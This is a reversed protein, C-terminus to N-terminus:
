PSVQAEATAIVAPLNPIAEYYGVFRQPEEADYGRLKQAWRFSISQYLLEVHVTFPGPASGVDVVYRVHDGGAGFDDDGAAAGYVAIDPDVGAKDFGLPLLRNDKVYGSGRLLVTTVQGNVDEMVSEYVQVQEPNDITAHHPEYQGAGADHDEGAIAGDPGVAGSEFVVRGDGDAVTLYLWARRSPFGSPFKHGALNNVVVTASLTSDSLSLDKLALHATRNQLQELTAEEKAAFMEGSATVGVEDGFRGLIRLMYANGGVFLHQFFPSRPPGGTVSLRVGGDARPMHCGQCPTGAQAYASQQWELYPTQEPFEGAIAGDDDLYPTYLTHCTACLEASRVQEGLQPVFGSASQMMNSLGPPTEYPGYASRQGMPLDDDISFHGGFSAPDGLSEDRIQHCLTCSVGDMALAHLDHGPDVFGPGSIGGQEGHAAVTFRAMPMHCTACKDEILAKHQPHSLVEARVSGQWYPDRADNAMMTSRWLRDTSVDAGSQDVHNTHCTACLGSGAFFEGKETPLQGAQAVAATPEALEAPPGTAPAETEVAPAPTAAAETAPPVRTPTAPGGCAAVLL